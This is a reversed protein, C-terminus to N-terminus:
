SKSKFDLLAREGEGYLMPMNVGFIGLLCYALDESRATKRKSAWSMRQTVSASELDDGLLINANIGTIASIVEQLSPKTGIEQWDDAFFIVTSPAILDQLTWGRTFWRSRVFNSELERPDEYSAVDSLYVYCVEANQYWKYMSNIAESLESSSTKDICCTDLWLYEFGDAAAIDCFHEVKDYGTRDANCSRMYEFFSGKREIHSYRMLHFRNASSNKSSSRLQTTSVFSATVSNFKASQRNRDRSDEGIVKGPSTLGLYLYMYIEVNCVHLLYIDRFIV